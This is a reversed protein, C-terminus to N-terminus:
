SKVNVTREKINTLSVQGPFRRAEDGVPGPGGAGSHRCGMAHREGHHDGTAALLGQRGPVQPLPM